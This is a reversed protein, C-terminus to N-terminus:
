MKLLSNKLDRGGYKFILYIHGHADRAKNNKLAKLAKDLDQKSWEKSKETKCIDYRLQFLYEKLNELNELGDAMKNPKLRDVYTDLYLNELLSKDSILNGKPDKKAMPPEESNKPALTKKLSWIKAQNFGGLGDKSQGLHQDVKDKNNKACLSAIENLVKELNDMNTEYEDDNADHLALYTKLQVKKEFLEDLVPNPKIKKVCIKRFCKKIIKNLTSMWRNCAINLDENIDKLCKRLDINDNTENVYKEFDEKKKYNYIEIRDEKDQLATNWSTNVNLVFMNHDTEKISKRGNKSSFKTLPFIRKEDIYLKNILNFFQRCVLFFDIVSEEVGNITKRYRTVIGICKNTGNVVILDNKDVVKSLYKVNKSISKKDGPVYSSGLKSNADMQVCVMAGSVTSSKVETDLRNFFALKEEDSSNSEDQPGYGNIFRVANNKINGQVVLIEIEDEDSVSVPKLSKHVATLLGGGGSSKRVHEFVIYDPHSIKNKRKCKSEQIFFVGPQFKKILLFFSDLKNLLGAANNGLINM